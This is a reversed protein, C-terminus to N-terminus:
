MVGNGRRHVPTLEMACRRQGQCEAIKDLELIRDKADKGDAHLSLTPMSTPMKVEGADTIVKYMGTVLTTM